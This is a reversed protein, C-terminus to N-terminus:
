GCGTSPSGAAASITIDHGCSLVTLGAHRDEVEQWRQGLGYEALLAPRLRRVGVPGDVVGM